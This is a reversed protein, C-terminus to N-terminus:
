IGKPEPYRTKVLTIIDRWFTTGNIQDWYIMDFQDEILPYALRRQDKYTLKKQEETRPDPSPLEFQQDSWSIIECGPYKGRLNQYENHTAIIKGNQIVLQIM